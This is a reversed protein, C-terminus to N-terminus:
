TLHNEGWLSDCLITIKWLPISRSMKDLLTSQIICSSLKARKPIVM